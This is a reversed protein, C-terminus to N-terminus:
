IFLLSITLVAILPIAGCVFFPLVIGAIAKGTTIEHIERLGVITLYLKWFFQIIGGLIPVTSFIESGTSYCVARLTGEFDHKAANIILLSVHLIAAWVIIGIFVILPILLGILIVSHSSLALTSILTNGLAISWTFSTM